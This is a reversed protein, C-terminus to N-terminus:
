VNKFDLNGSVYIFDLGLIENFFFDIYKFFLVFLIM